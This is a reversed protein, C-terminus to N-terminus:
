QSGSSRPELREGGSKIIKLVDRIQVKMKRMQLNPQKPPSFSTIRLLLTAM